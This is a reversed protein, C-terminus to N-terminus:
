LLESKPFIIKPPFTSKEMEWRSTLRALDGIYEFKQARKSKGTKQLTLCNGTTLKLM